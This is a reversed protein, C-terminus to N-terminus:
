GSQAIGLPSKLRLLDKQKHILLEEKIRLMTILFSSPEELHPCHASNEFWILDKAPASLHDFFRQQLEHPSLYDYKGVCLYVPIAVTQVDDFLNIRMIERGISRMHLRMGKYYRWWDLLTYETSFFGRLLFRFISGKRVDGGFRSVWKHHAYLDRTRKYPPYGLRQLASIARRKELQRAHILVHQYSILEGKEVNSLQGIGIYAHLLEPHIQAFLIGLISGWSHGALFVRKQNFRTLLYQILEYIDDIHQQITMDAKLLRPSFSKGTGRMDWNVVLFHKELEQQYHRAFGIQAFGPGGHLFLLLPHSQDRGRVMITQEQGGLIIKEITAVSGEIKRKKLDFFQPTRSKFM